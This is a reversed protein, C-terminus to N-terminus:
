TGKLNLLRIIDVPYCREASPPLVYSRQYFKAGIRQQDHVILCVEIRKYVSFTSAKDELGNVKHLGLFEPSHDLSLSSFFTFLMINKNRVFCQM